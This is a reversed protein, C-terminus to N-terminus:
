DAAYIQLGSRNGLALGLRNRRLGPVERREGAASTRRAQMGDCRCKHRDSRCAKPEHLVCSPLNGGSIQSDWQRTYNQVRGLLRKEAAISGSGKGCRTEITQTPGNGCLIAAQFVRCRTLRGSETVRTRGISFQMTTSNLVWTGTHSLRQAEALYGVSRCLLDEAKKREDIDVSLGYWQVINGQRDRLPEGRAHHWRYEGDGARRLRHLSQFSTRTQIAHCLAEATEPFDAPHVLAEWGGHQFDEFRMGSYELVHQSVYTPEGDPGVSWLLSPVTLKYESEQLAKDTTELRQNADRLSECTRLHARQEIRVRTVLFNVIFSTIVFATITTLDQPYDVRFSYIPPAFFYSLCCVCIFSLVILSYFNSVPSLLVLVVLYTFAASVLPVDLWFYLGTLTALLVLGLL